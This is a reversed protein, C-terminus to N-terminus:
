PPLAPPTNLYSFSAPCLWSSHQVERCVKARNEKPEPHCPDGRGAGGGGGPRESPPPACEGPGRARGPRTWAGAGGGCRSGCGSEGSEALHPWCGPGAGPKVALPRCPGKGWGTGQAGARSACFSYEVGKPAIDRGRRRGLLAWKDGLPWPSWQGAALGLLSYLTGPAQHYHQPPSGPSLSFAASSTALRKNLTSPSRPIWHFM